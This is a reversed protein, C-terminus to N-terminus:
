SEEPARISVRIAKELEYFNLLRFRMVIGSAFRLKQVAGQCCGLCVCGQVASPMSLVRWLMRKGKAKSGHGKTCLIFNWQGEKTVLKPWIADQPKSAFCRQLASQRGVGLGMSARALIHEIFRLLQNMSIM